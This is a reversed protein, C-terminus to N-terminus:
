EETRSHWGPKALVSHLTPARWGMNCSTPKQKPATTNAQPFLSLTQLVKYAVAAARERSLSESLHLVDHRSKPKYKPTTTKRYLSKALSTPKFQTSIATGANETTNKASYQVLRLFSISIQPKWFLEQKSIIQRYPHGPSTQETCTSSSGMIQGQAMGLWSTSLFGLLDHLHLLFHNIRLFPNTLNALPQLAYNKGFNEECPLHAQLQVQCMTRQDLVQVYPESSYAMIWGLLQRMGRKWDLKVTSGMKLCSVQWKHNVDLLHHSTYSRPSGLDYSSFDRVWCSYLCM